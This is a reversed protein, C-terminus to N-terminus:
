SNTSCSQYLDIIQNWLNGDEKAFTDCTYKPHMRTNLTKDQTKPNVNPFIINIEELCYSFKSMDKALSNWQYYIQMAQKIKSSRTSINLAKSFYNWAKPKMSFFSSMTHEPNRIQHFIKAKPLVLAVEEMCPGYLPPDKCLCWSSIGKKSIKEHGINFYKSAYKTGSRPCAVIIYQEM